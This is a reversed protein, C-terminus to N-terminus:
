VSPHEFAASGAYVVALFPWLESIARIIASFSLFHTPGSLLQAPLTQYPNDPGINTAAVAAAFCFAATLWQARRRLRSLAYLLVGGAFVGLVVGPTVWAFLANSKVIAVASFGKAAFATAFLMALALGRPKIDRTLALVILGIGLANLAAVTAEATLLLSPTHIVWVPLDFTNRLHGTGFLQVTPHLQTAVWLCLLVLGIDASQGYVFWERRLRTLRSGLLRTPSFLPAALAGILGGILNTLVDVNSAIRTPMFMQATEMIVSVLCAVLAAFFAARRHPLRRMFSRALLFGLPVYAGINVMVDELTIYRPWPATLFQQIEEPPIWWGSFPQLSAYAIVLLYAVALSSAIRMPHPARLPLRRERDSVM